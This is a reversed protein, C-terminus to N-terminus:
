KKANENKNPTATQQLKEFKEIASSVFQVARRVRDISGTGDQKAAVRLAAMPLSAFSITCLPTLSCIATTVIGGFAVISFVSVLFASWKSLMFVISRPVLDKLMETMESSDNHGQGGHHNHHQPGDPVFIGYETQMPAFGFPGQGFPSPGFQPAGFPPPVIAPPGFPPPGFPAPGLAPMGLPPAGFPPPVVAPPGFPGVQPPADFPPQGFPAHELQPPPGYPNWQNSPFYPGGYPNVYQQIPHDPM